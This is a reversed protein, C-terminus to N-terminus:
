IIKKQNIQKVPIAYNKRQYALLVKAEDISNDLLGLDTIKNIKNYIKM